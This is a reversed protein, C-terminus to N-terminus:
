PVYERYLCITSKEHNAGGKNVLAIKGNYFPANWSM